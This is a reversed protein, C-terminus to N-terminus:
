SRKELMLLETFMIQTKCELVTKRIRTTALLSPPVNKLTEPLVNQQLDMKATPQEQM